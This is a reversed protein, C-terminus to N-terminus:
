SVVVHDPRAHNPHQLFYSLYFMRQTWRRGRMKSFRTSVLGQSKGIVKAIDTTKTVGRRLCDIIKLDEAHWKAKAQSQSAEKATYHPKPLEPPSLWFKLKEIARHWISSINGQTVGLIQAVDNQTKDAMFLMFLVDHEYKSLKDLACRAKDSNWPVGTLEAFLDPRTWKERFYGRGDSRNDDYGCSYKMADSHTHSYPEPMIPTRKSRYSRTIRM